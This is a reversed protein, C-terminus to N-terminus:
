SRRPLRKPHDNNKLYHGFRVCIAAYNKATTKMSMFVDEWVEFFLSLLSGKVREVNKVVKHHSLSGRELQTM